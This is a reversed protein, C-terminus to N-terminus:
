AHDGNDRWSSDSFCLTMISDQQMELTPSANGCSIGFFGGGKQSGNM